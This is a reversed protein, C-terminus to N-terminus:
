RRMSERYFKMPWEKALQPGPHIGDGTPPATTFTMTHVYFCGIKTAEAALMEDTATMNKEPIIPTHSSPPGIWICQSGANKIDQLMERVSGFTSLPNKKSAINTGLQVITLKPHISSLEQLLQPTNYNKMRIEDSPDAGFKKWFGCVTKAYPPANTGTQPLWNSPTSGCSAETTVHSSLQRLAADITAGFKGYSISDGIYLIPNESLQSDAFASAHTFIFSLALVLPGLKRM